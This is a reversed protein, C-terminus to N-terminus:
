ASKSSNAYSFFAVALANNDGYVFDLTVAM